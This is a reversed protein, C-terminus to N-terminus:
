PVPRNQEEKEEKPTLSINGITLGPEALVMSIIRKFYGAFMEIKEKKFLRTGYRFIFFLADGKVVGTLTMDFKSTSQELVHSEEDPLARRDELRGNDEVEHLIFKCDFLPGRATEREGVVEAALDEFPYDQNEFADLTKKKVERLFTTFTKEAGPYNRLALTNVFMGIVPELDPHRRGAAPTGIVIDEGGSIKALLIYYLSLLAMFLTAKNELALAKLAWAEPLSLDFRYVAGEFSRRRPRPFDLPLELPLVEGPFEAFELLWYERQRAFADGGRGALWGAYDKYHIKLAPLEGGDYLTSFEKFLIQLSVADTISHHMDVMMLGTDGDRKMVAVRLLPAFALNFPRIFDMRTEERTKAALDVYEVKFDAHSHVRQVPEGDVLHFSTRLSEHRQILKGFTREVRERALELDTDIDLELVTAVNYAITEPYMRQVIYVREQAPSLPYYGRKEVPEVADYKNGAARVGDIYAALGRITRLRFLEVLPIKVGSELYLANLLQIGKLSHGGLDFFDDLVGIGGVDFLEKWVKQISLELANGPGVYEVRSVIEPVPLADTDIKGNATLPISAMPVICLPIMYYPLFRSLYDKLAESLSATRESSDDCVVYACLYPDGNKTNGTTVVSENIGTHATLRNEIEELEIRFGRIKVQHDRRGIFEIDGTPLWRALDGTKYFVYTRYSRYTKYSRYFRKATLAPQNLYGRTVGPGAICLEGVLGIPVLVGEEDLIVIKYNAIPKGIPIPSGAPGPKYRYYTACVTTETPGYTNYVRGLKVLKDVYARKLVDGGSIFKLAPGGPVPAITHANRNFENLLLPTTDVLTVGHAAMLGISRSVDAAEGPFPIVVRGGGLLLPFVEETFADFTYPALQLGTDKATIKFERYFAYVNAVVNGHEVLVGKPRGTTGSTYIVYALDGATNVTGPNEGGGRYVDKRDLRIVGAAPCLKKKLARSSLTITSGSDKLMFRVREEPYDPDLPLYAGGAKLIALLGVIMELSPGVMMATVTDPGAGNARLLRALGNAKENLAKYTMSVLTGTSAQLDSGVLAVCDGKAAARDEFLGHITRHAPYDMSTGNFDELIKKREEETLIDVEGLEMDVNFILAEVLWSFRRDLIEMSKRRYLRSNYRLVGEIGAGTRQFDFIINPKIHNIYRADHINRLLVAVDFFPCGGNMDGMDGPDALLLVPFNRHKVADAMTQRVQRLLAKFSMRCSLRHRIPLVTNIFEKDEQQRYIPAGTIIDKEGTYKYLLVAVVATLVMNLKVDGGNSLEMLRDYIDPSFQWEVKEMRRADQEVAEPRSDYPFRHKVPRALKELWYTREASNQNAVVALRDTDYIKLM